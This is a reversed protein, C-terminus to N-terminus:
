HGAGGQHELWSIIQWPQLAPRAVPYFVWRIEGGYALLTLRRFWRRSAHEFTPLGLREALGLGSDTVMPHSLMNETVTEKQERESQSSIGLTRVGLEQFEDQHDRFAQHEVADELPGERGPAPKAASTGPYLYYVVWGLSVNGLPFVSRGPEMVPVDPVKRGILQRVRHAERAREFV